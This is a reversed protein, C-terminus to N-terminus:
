GKPPFPDSGQSDRMRIRGKDGQVILESRNVRAIQRAIAIAVRQRVPPILYEGSGEETVSFQGGRHVVWVNPGHRTEQKPM